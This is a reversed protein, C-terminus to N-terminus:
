ACLQDLHQQVDAAAPDALQEYLLKARSWSVRADDVQGASSFVEGLGVLAAAEYYRDSMELWRAVAEQYCDIAEDLQGLRHHIFGLSDWTHAEGEPHGIQQHVSLAEQCYPLGATPNGLQAYFWGVENLTEALAVPPGTVRFLELAAQAEALAIDFRDQRGWMWGLSFHTQALGTVDAISEFVALANGYHEAAEDYRRQWTYARALGREACAQARSDGLRRAAALATRQVIELDYWHCGRDLYTVLAWCLQYTAVDLRESEAQETTALLVPHEARFWDLAAAADTLPVPAVVAPTTLWLEPCRMPNLLRDARQATQCYFDLIRGRAADRHARDEAEEVLECAYARLLDHFTFRSPLIEEVLHARALDALLRRTPGAPQELLATAAAIGIQPGPHLALLRFTRAAAQSLGTQSWSFVRRVDTGDDGDFADLGGGAEHLEAALASLPFEPRTAARAAVIALALPLRACLSVIDDVAASEQAVRAPGLRRSLYVKAEAETLLDLSIPVAGDGAVLGTLDNRSTVIVVCDASGPLLPRVQDTDRANDLVVLMRREALLSRLLACQGEITLPLRQSSVDLADLFGRVAEGPEMPTATPDFGRLNVYLQGDPFRGKIEHAWAIALATKGVGASGAIATILTTPQTATGAAALAAKLRQLQPRRGTFDPVRHPLQAPVGAPSAVISVPALPPVANAAITLLDPDGTLIREHLRKLEPSPDLGLEDRLHERTERYASLAEGTRGARHLALMLAARLRERLPNERVTRRLEPVLDADRGLILDVEVRDELVGIRLEELRDREADLVPSHLGDCLAGRWIRLAAQFSSSASRVDGGSRAARARQVEREFLQLDLSGAPVSLVYGADTWGLLRSHDHRSRDPDLAQRLLSVHKQLLNVAYAPAADGWVADILEARPFPRGSHLLLLSLVVQQQLRGLPIATEGRRVQLPGLLEFRLPWSAGGQLEVM